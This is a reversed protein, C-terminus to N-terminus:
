FLLVLPAPFERAAQYKPSWVKVALPMLETGPPFVLIRCAVHCRWFYILDTPSHTHTNGAPLIRGGGWWGVEWGAWADLFVQCHRISRLQKFAEVSPVSVVKLLLELTILSVSIPHQCPTPLAHSQCSLPRLRLKLGM